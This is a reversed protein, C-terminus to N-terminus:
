LPHKTRRLWRHPVNCVSNWCPSKIAVHLCSLHLLYIPYAIHLLYVSLNSLYLAISLYISQVVLTYHISLYIPRAFYWHISLYISCTVIPVLRQEYSALKLTIILSFLSHPLKNILIYSIHTLTSTWFLSLLPIIVIVIVWMMSLQIINHIWFLNYSSIM